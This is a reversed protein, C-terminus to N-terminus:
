SKIQLFFFQSKVVPKDPIRMALASGSGSDGKYSPIWAFGLFQHVAVFYFEKFTVKHKRKSEEMRTDWSIALEAIRRRREEETLPVAPKEEAEEPLAAVEEPEEESVGAEERKAAEIERLLLRNSTVEDKHFM